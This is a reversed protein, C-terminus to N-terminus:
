LIRNEEIKLLILTTQIEKVTRDLHEVLFKKERRNIEDYEEMLSNITIISKITGDEFISIKEFNKSLFTYKSKFNFNPLVETPSEMGGIDEKIKETITVNYRELLESNEFRSIALKINDRLLELEFSFVRSYMKRLNRQIWFNQFWTYVLAVIAGIIVLVISTLFDM